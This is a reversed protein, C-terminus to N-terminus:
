IRTLRPDIYFNTKGWEKVKIRKWRTGEVEFHNHNKTSQKSNHLWNKPKYNKKLWDKANSIKMILDKKITAKKDIENEEWWQIWM